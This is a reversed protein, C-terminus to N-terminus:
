HSDSADIFKHHLYMGAMCGLGGGTGVAFIMPLVKVFSGWTFPFLQVGIYAVTSIGIVESIAMLYAIPMVYRYNLWAINRGQVAKFLIFLFWASGAVLEPIVRLESHGM